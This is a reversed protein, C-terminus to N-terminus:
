NPIPTVEVAASEIGVENIGRVIRFYGNEGWNAGWSNKVIWYKTNTEKDVGYGVVLVAHNVEFFPNYRVLSNDVSVKTHKYIGKHYSQFDSEVQFDVALPGNNILSVLIRAENGAGYYGGVYSYNATYYRNGVKKAKCESNHGVYPFNDEITVGFDQAYKGATLYAFGGACGQSYESCSVVDQPSFVLQEKNKTLVRIRSEKNGFEDVAINPYQLEIKVKYLSRQTGDCKETREASRESESVLWVGRIDEYTCNAPTDCRVSYLCVLVSILIVVRNVM